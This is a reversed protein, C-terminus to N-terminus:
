RYMCGLGIEFHIVKIVEMLCIFVKIDFVPFKPLFIDITSKTDSLVNSIIAHFHTSKWIHSKFRKSCISSVVTSCYDIAIIAYVCCTLSIFSTKPVQAFQLTLM